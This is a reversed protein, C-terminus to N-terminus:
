RLDARDSCLIERSRFNPQRKNRQWQDARSDNNVREQGTVLKLSSFKSKYRRFSLLPFLSEGQLTIPRLVSPLFQVAQFQRVILRRSDKAGSWRSAPPM